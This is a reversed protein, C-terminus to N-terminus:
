PTRTLASPAVDDGTLTGEGLAVGSADLPAAWKLIWPDGVGRFPILFLLVSASPPISSHLTWPTTADEVVWDTRVAGSEDTIEGPGDASRVSVPSVVSEGLADEVDVTSVISRVQYFLGPRVEGRETPGAATSSVRGVVVVGGEARVTVALDTLTDPAAFVAAAPSYVNPPAEDGGSTCGVAAILSVAVLSLTLTSRM